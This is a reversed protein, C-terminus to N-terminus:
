VIFVRYKVSACLSIQLDTTGAYHQKDAGFKKLMDQARVINLRSELPAGEYIGTPVLIIYKADSSLSMSKLTLPAEDFHYILVPNAGATDWIQNYNKM